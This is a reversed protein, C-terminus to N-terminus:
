ALTQVTCFWVLNALLNEDIQLNGTVQKWLTTDSARLLAKIVTVVFDYSQWILLDM